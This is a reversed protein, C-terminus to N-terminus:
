YVTAGVEALLYKGLREATDIADEDGMGMVVMHATHVVHPRVTLKALYVDIGVLLSTTAHHLHQRITKGGVTIGTHGGNTQVLYM